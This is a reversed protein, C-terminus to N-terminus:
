SSAVTIPVRFQYITLGAGDFRLVYLVRRVNTDVVETQVGFAFCAVARATYRGIGPLTQLQEVTNPLRGDHDRMAAEAARKLNVARRNYGLGQWMRLVDGTSAIALAQLTPFRELFARYLPIVRDVQTPQFHGM